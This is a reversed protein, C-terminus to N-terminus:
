QAVHGGEERLERYTLQAYIVDNLTPGYGFMFVFGDFFRQGDIRLRRAAPCPGLWGDPTTIIDTIARIKREHEATM